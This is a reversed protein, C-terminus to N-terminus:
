PSDVYRCTLFSWRFRSRSFSDKAVMTRATPLADSEGESNVARVAFAYERGAELDNVDFTTTTVQGVSVWADALVVLKEVLYEVPLGGDDKSAEWTLRCGSRHVETVELRGEPMSPKSIVKVQLSAKATGHMNSAECVLLGTDRLRGASAVQLHSWYPKNSMRIGNGPAEALERGNLKWSITECPPEGTVEAEFTMAEGARYVLNDRDGCTLTVKPKLAKHRCTLQDSDMSWPGPGAANVARVRIAYGQGTVFPGTAEGFELCHRVHGAEFYTTDKWHRGELHYGLIRSGGDHKPGEWRLDFHDFDFGVMEPRGPAGPAGFPDETIFSDSATLPESSGEMNVAIVQLRYDKDPTLGSVNGKCCDGNVKGCPTWQTSGGGIREIIYHTIPSGGDDEPPSWECTCGQGHVDRIKLPGRPKSPVDRVVVEVEASDFGHENECRLTYM